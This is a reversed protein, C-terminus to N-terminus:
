DEKPWYKKPLVIVKFDFLGRYAARYEELIYNKEKLDKAYDCHEWERDASGRYRCLIQYKYGPEPDYAKPNSMLDHGM